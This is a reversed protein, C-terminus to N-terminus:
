EGRDGTRVGENAIENDEVYRRPMALSSWGGAQQLAFPDTGARAANTAWYHRCDHASLEYIGLRRGLENVRQTIARTTLGAKSLKGGKLSRRLLPGSAFLEGQARCARAARLTAPSLRHTQEKHVKPRFFRLLGRQLDLGEAKLGIVEGARLGHDLLLCMLLADRRAQPTDDVPHKLVAAQESTLLVPAEKKLGVRTVPRRQDIRAAERHAYGTVTRILAYEEPALTGAQFALKAYTKVTSLRVNISAVAYGEKLQWKVFAEVLGWSMGRWAQPDQALDGHRVGAIELFEGLLRLDADQRRLTQDAKRSRYDSFRHAAAAQNAAQGLQRLPEPITIASSTEKTPM